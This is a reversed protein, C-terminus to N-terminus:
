VSGGQISGCQGVSVWGRKVWTIVSGWRRERHGVSHDSDTPLALLSGSFSIFDDASCTLLGARIFKYTFLSLCRPFQQM